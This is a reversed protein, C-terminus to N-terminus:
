VDIGGAYKAVCVRSCTRWWMARFAYENRTLRRHDQTRADALQSYYNARRQLKRAGDYAGHREAMLRALRTPTMTQYM